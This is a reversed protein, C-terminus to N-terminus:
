SCNMEASVLGMLSGVASKSINPMRGAPRLVNPHSKNRGCKNERKVEENKIFRARVACGWSIRRDLERGGSNDLKSVVIETVGAKSIKWRYGGM